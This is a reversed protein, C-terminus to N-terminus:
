VLLRPEIRCVVCVDLCVVRKGIALTARNPLSPLVVPMTAQLLHRQANAAQRQQHVDIPMIGYAM